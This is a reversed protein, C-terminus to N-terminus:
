NKSYKGMLEGEAIIHGVMENELEKRSSGPKLGLQKDLAYVRFFYRHTGSPPCPGGYGIKRFDNIGEVGPVSDEDIKAIPAINWVIWHTFLKMPADPDDLILVLSKAEVPIDRFELSPNINKASCTYKRPITNNSEFASSFIKIIQLTMYKDEEGSKGGRSSVTTVALSAVFCVILFIVITKGFKM